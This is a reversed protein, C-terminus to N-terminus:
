FALSNKGLAETFEGFAMSYDGTAKGFHGWASSETGSANVSNGQIKAGDGDPAGWAVPLSYAGTLYTSLLLGCLVRAALRKKNTTWFKAM